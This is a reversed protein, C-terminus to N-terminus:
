KNFHKIEVIDEYEVKRDRSNYNESYDIRLYSTDIHDIRGIITYRASYGIVIEVIDNLRYEGAGEFVVVDIRKAKM